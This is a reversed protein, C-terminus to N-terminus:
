QGLTSAGALGCLIDTNGIVNGQKMALVMFCDFNPMPFTQSGAGAAVDLVIGSLSIIRYGDEGNGLPADWTLAASGAESVRLTFHQPTNYSSRLNALL